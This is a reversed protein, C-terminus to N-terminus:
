RDTPPQGKPTPSSDDRRSPASGDQTPWIARLVEITADLDVNTRTSTEALKRAADLVARPTTVATPSVRTGAGTRTILVGEIELSRYAKAVTGPAVGLDRALQRVSPLRDDAALQRAAILGRIQDRIQDAPPASGSLRIIM